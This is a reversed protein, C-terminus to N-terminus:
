LVQQKFESKLIKETDWCKITEMDFNTRSADTIASVVDEKTAGKPLTPLCYKWTKAPAQNAKQLYNTDHVAYKGPLDTNMWFLSASRNRSKDMTERVLKLKPARCKKGDPWFYYISYGSSSTTDKAKHVIPHGAGHLDYVEWQRRGECNYQEGVRTKLKEGGAYLCTAELISDLYSREAAKLTVGDEKAEKHTKSRSYNNIQDQNLLSAEDMFRPDLLGVMALISIIDDVVMKMGGHPVNAAFVDRVTTYGDQEGKRRKDCVIRRQLYDRVAIMKKQWDKENIPNPRKGDINLGGNFPQCRRNYSYCFTNYYQNLQNLITTTL